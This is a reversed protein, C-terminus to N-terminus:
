KRRAVEEITEIYKNVVIERDFEREMKKRASLGMEKKREYSLNIFREIADELSKSSKVEFSFGTVGDEFTEICGPINSAIVPRGSASAELLVNSMGEHHSPQIVAHSKKIMNIVNDKQGHFFVVEEQELKNIEKLYNEESFGVIHFEVDKYSKKINKAATLLENIGKAEMLRGIYIFKIKESKKPYEQQQFENLNVGSGPLLVTNATVMKRKKFFSENEKNQFFIRNSKLLGIKYLLLSVNSLIGRNEISTGLGTINSLYPTNTVQCAIGGYINPKITYTLVVDPKEKKILRVYSILLQVDRIPNTGRRELKTEVYKCGLSEIKSVYSDEPFSVTVENKEKLVGLLVEKRFKYLGMGFNALVLIRM